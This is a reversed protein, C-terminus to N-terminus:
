ATGKEGLNCTFASVVSAFKNDVPSRCFPHLGTLYSVIRSKRRFQSPATATPSRRSMPSRSRRSCFSALVASCPKGGFFVGDVVFPSGIICRGSAIWPLQGARPLRPCRLALNAIEPWDLPHDCLQLCLMAKGVKLVKKAKRSVAMAAVRLAQRIIRQV